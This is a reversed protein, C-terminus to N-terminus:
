GKAESNASDDYVDEVFFHFQEDWEGPPLEEPYNWDQKAMTKWWERFADLEKQHYKTYEELTM